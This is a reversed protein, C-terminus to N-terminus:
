HTRKYEFSLGDYMSSPHSAFDELLQIKITLFIASNTSDSDRTISVTDNAYIASVKLLVNDNSVVGCQFGKTTDQSSKFIGYPTQIRYDGLINKYNWTLATKTSSQIAIYDNVKDGNFELEHSINVGDVTEDYKKTGYIGVLEWTGKSPPNKTSIRIISGVPYIDDFSLKETEEGSKIIDYVKSDFSNTM